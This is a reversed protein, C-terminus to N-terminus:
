TGGGRNRTGDPHSREISPFTGTSVEVLVGAVIGGLVATTLGLNLPLTGTLVCMAAAVGAAIKAPPDSLTPFLLALFTLPITFELSLYDPLRTGFLAGGVTGIQWALWQPTAAGFYYWARSLEDARTERFAAISIAYDEDTLVYAALTKVATGLRRFHQAISASYMLLRLNVVMVALVVITVPTAQSMLELAVLQAIGSYIFLSTGSVQAPSLGVSVSTAGTVLAFPVIAFLLPTATKAGAIFDDRNIVNECM